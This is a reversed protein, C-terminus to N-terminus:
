ELDELGHAHQSLVPPTRYTLHQQQCRSRCVVFVIFYFLFNAVDWPHLDWHSLTNHLNKGGRFMKIKDWNFGRYQLTLITAMKQKQQCNGYILLCEAHLKIFYTHYLFPFFILATQQKLIKRTYRYRHTCTCLRFLWSINQTSHVSCLLWATVSQVVYLFVYLTFLIYWLKDLLSILINETDTLKNM